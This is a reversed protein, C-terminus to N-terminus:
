LDRHRPGHQSRPVMRPPQEVWDVVVECSTITIWGRSDHFQGTAHEVVEINVDDISNFRTVRGQPGTNIRSGHRCRRDDEVTGFDDVAHPQLVLGQDLSRVIHKAEICGVANNAQRWQSANPFGFTNVRNTEEIRRDAATIALSM